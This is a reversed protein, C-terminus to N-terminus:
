PAAALPMWGAPAADLIVVERMKFDWRKATQYDLDVGWGSRLLRPVDRRAACDVVLFPGEVTDEDIQLWVRRNIDGARVLAITGICEPCATIDGAKRRYAVVEDMIGPNYYTTHGRVPLRTQEFYGPKMTAVTDGPRGHGRPFAAPNAVPAPTATAIATATVGEVAAVPAPSPTLSPTPTGTATITASAAAVAAAQPGPQHPKAGNGAPQRAPDLEMAFAPRAVHLASCLAAALLLPLVLAAIAAFRNNTKTM